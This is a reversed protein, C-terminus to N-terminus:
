CSWPLRGLAFSTSDANKYQKGPQEEQQEITHHQSM